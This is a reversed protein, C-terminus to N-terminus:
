GLKFGKAKAQRQLQKQAADRQAALLAQAQPTEALATRIGEAAPTDFSRAVDLASLGAANPLTPDAGAQMLNVFLRNGQGTATLRVAHHLVRDGNPLQQNVDAGATILLDALFYNELKLAHQLPTAGNKDPLNADPKKVIFNVIMALVTGSHVSDDGISDVKNMLTFLVPSGTTMDTVNRNAGANLAIIMKNVSLEWVAQVLALDHDTKYANPDTM